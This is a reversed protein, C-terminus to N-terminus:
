TYNNCKIHGEESGMLIACWPAETKISFGLKQYLHSGIHKKDKKKAGCNFAELGNQYFSWLVCFDFDFHLVGAVFWRNYRRYHAIKRSIGSAGPRSIGAMLDELGLLASKKTCLIM